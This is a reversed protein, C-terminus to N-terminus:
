NVLVWWAVVSAAARAFSGACARAFRRGGNQRVCEDHGACASTIISMGSRSFVCVCNPGCCGTCSQVAFLSTRSSTFQGAQSNCRASAPRMSYNNTAHHARWRHDRIKSLTQASEDYDVLMSVLYYVLLAENAPEQQGYQIIAVGTQQM